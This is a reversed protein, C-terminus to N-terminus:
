ILCKFLKGGRYGVQVAIESSSVEQKIQEERWLKFIKGKKRRKRTERTPRRQIGNRRTNKAIVTTYPEVTSVNTAAPHEPNESPKSLENDWERNDLESVEKPYKRTTPSRSKIRHCMFFFLFKFERILVLLLFVLNNISVFMYIFTFLSLDIVYFVSDFVARCINFASEFFTVTCSSCDWKFVKKSTQHKDLTEKIHKLTKRKIRKSFDVISSGTEILCNIM